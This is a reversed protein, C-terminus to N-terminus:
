DLLYIIFSCILKSDFDRYWIKFRWYYVLKEAM